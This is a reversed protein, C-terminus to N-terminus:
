QRFMDDVLGQSRWLQDLILFFSRQSHGRSSIQGGVLRDSMEGASVMGYAKVNIGNM